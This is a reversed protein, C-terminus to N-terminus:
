SLGRFSLRVRLRYSNDFPLRFLSMPKRFCGEAFDAGRTMPGPLKKQADQTEPEPTSFESKVHTRGDASREPGTESFIEKTRGFRVSYDKNKFYKRRRAFRGSDM